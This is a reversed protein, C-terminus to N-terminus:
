YLRVNNRRSNTHLHISPMGFFWSRKKAQKPPTKLVYIEGNRLKCNKLTTLLNMHKDFCQITINQGMVTQEVDYSYEQIEPHQGFFATIPMFRDVQVFDGNMNDAPPLLRTFAQKIQENTAM